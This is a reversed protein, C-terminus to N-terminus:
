APEDEYLKRLEFVAGVGFGLFVNARISLKKM